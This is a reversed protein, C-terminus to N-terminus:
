FVGFMSARGSAAFNPTIISTSARVSAGSPTEHLGGSVTLADAKQHAVADALVFQMVHSQTVGLDWLRAEYRVYTKSTMVLRTSPLATRVAAGATPDGVSTVDLEWGAHLPGHKYRLGLDGFGWGYSSTFRMFPQFGAFTVPQLTLRLTSPSVRAVAFQNAWLFSQSAWPARGVNSRINTLVGAKGPGLPMWLQTDGPQPPELDRSPDSATVMRTRDSSRADVSQAKVLRPAVVTAAVVMLLFGTRM